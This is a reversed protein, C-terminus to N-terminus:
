ALPPNPISYDTNKTSMEVTSINRIMQVESVRVEVSSVINVEPVLVNDFYNRHIYSFGLLIFPLLSILLTMPLALKWGKTDGMTDFLVYGYLLRSVMLTTWITLNSSEEIGKCEKDLQEEYWLYCGEAGEVQQIGKERERAKLLLYGISLEEFYTISYVSCCAIVALPPFLAGGFAVLITLYSNIQIIVFLKAFLVITPKIVSIDKEEETQQRCYLHHFCPSLCFRELFQALYQYCLVSKTKQQKVKV